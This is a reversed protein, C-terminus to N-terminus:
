RPHLSDATVVGVEIAVVPPVPRGALHTAIIEIATRGM